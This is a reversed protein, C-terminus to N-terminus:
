KIIANGDSNRWMGSEHLMIPNSEDYTGGRVFVDTGSGAAENALTVTNIPFALTGNGGNPANLDVYLVSPYVTMAAIVTQKTSNNSQVHMNVYWFTRDDAPDVCMSSYDGWRVGHDPHTQYYSGNAITTEAINMVGSAKRNEIVDQGTYRIGPYVTTSSVSYGLCIEGHGNMKISGMWRSTANPSYTGQQRISWNGTTRRLEYWRIGARDTNDVDVTHCCVLTQYSGFNRYQPANMIIIPIGDLKQTTGPQAINSWTAGFNSDFAAVNIQQTRTFTSSGPTTWNVSLQYIWLQDSGGGVADDNIAIFLGPYGVPGFAGDCDVPPVIMFGGGQSSAPRWPNDFGVLQPNAGGTLMVAREMVYIDNGSGSYGGTNTAMYYGDRWIGIKQYDPVDDVDFSYQFWAGTPDNTQSIAILMFDNAGCLSFEVAVWRDAQEDYHILPDGSNCNAGPVTGFLSNFLNPGAVLTGSKDYIAYRVNYGQMYHNPGAEGCPDPPFAGSTQGNFNLVTAKSNEMEGMNDQWVQDPGKPLATEQFPYDRFQLAPNRPPKERDKRDIEAMEQPTLPPIDRLPQSVGILTGTRITKPYVVPQEQAFVTVSYCLSIFLVSISTKM